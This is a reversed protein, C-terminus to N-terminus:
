KDWIKKVMMKVKYYDKKKTKIKEDICTFAIPLDTQRSIDNAFDQSSLVTEETTLQGLNSNNILKTARVRSCVEIDKLLATAECPTKTLYRFSNIVYFMDYDRSNIIDCYRGLATAGADDGGVDVIVYRSKNELCTSIQPPLAPIDLNTNAYLPTVVEIGHSELLEKFDATRFYPNVIDLDIITVDKGSQKLTLAMNVAINTKGSGYHGVIISLQKVNQM